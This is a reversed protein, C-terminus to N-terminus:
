GSRAGLAGFVFVLYSLVALIDVGNGGHSFEDVCKSRTGFAEMTGSFGSRFGESSKIQEEQGLSFANVVLDGLELENLLMEGVSHLM